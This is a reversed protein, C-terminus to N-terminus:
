LIQRRKVDLYRTILAAALGEVPAPVLVVGRRQLVAQLERLAQWQLHGALAGYADDLTAVREDGFM